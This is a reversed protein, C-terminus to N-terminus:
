YMGIGALKAVQGAWPGAATVILHARIPRGSADNMQPRVLVGSIRQARLKNEDATADDGFAHVESSARNREFQFGEVEGKVYQFCM